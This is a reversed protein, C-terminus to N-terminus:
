HEFKDTHQIFLNLFYYTGKKKGANTTILLAVAWARLVKRCGTLFVERLPFVVVVVAVVVMLMVVAHIFDHQRNFDNIM